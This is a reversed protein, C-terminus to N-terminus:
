NQEDVWENFRYKAKAILNNYDVIDIKHVKILNISEIRKNENISYISLHYEKM